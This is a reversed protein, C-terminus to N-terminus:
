KKITMGADLNKFSSIILIINLKIFYLYFTINKYIYIIYLLIIRYQITLSSNFEQTTIFLKFLKLIIKNKFLLLPKLGYFM